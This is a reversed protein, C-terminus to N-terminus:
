SWEVLAAARTFGAGQGYLAVRTGAVLRGTTRAALLNVVVGCAGLHARDTFTEVARSPAMGSAEAIAHPVWARPQISALVDVSALPVDTESAIERLAFAGIRVTDRVLQRAKDSDYSGMAFAGGPEWWPTDAEKPRRWVVADFYEGNSVVRTGLLGGREVEGVVLATAADGVNPAAPHMMPFARTMLHSQTLLVRRARGSQILASALELGAVASACVADVGLAYAATAGVAYAVAAATPPTLRDPVATSSLVVDVDHGDVGADELAARAARAEADHATEAEAVRRWTTGLFPDDREPALHRAVIRDIADGGADVSVATLEADARARQAAVFAEPWADNGRKTDPVWQGMGLIGVRM